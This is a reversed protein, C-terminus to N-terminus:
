CMRVSMEISCDSSRCKLVGVEVACSPGSAVLLCAISRADRVKGVSIHRHVNGLALATSGM